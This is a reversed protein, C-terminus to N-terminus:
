VATPSPSALLLGMNIESLGKSQESSMRQQLEEKYEYIKRLYTKMEGLTFGSELRVYEETRIMLRMAHEVGISHILEIMDYHKGMIM